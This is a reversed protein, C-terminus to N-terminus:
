CEWVMECDLLSKRICLILYGLSLLIIGIWVPGSVRDYVADNAVVTLWVVNWVVCLVTAVYELEKSRNCLLRFCICCSVFFPILFDVVLRCATIQVTYVTIVFFASVMVIDVAAFLLIRAACIDRLSYYAAKEIAISSYRRNKWIEPIILIAFIAVLEGIIRETNGEMANDWLLYWLFLLTVGQLVWWKKDIYRSQEYIFEFYSIRSDKRETMVAECQDVVKQISTERVYHKQILKKYKKIKKQYQAM